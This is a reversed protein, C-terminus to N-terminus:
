HFKDKKNTKYTLRSSKVAAQQQQNDAGGVSPLYSLSISKISSLQGSSSKQSSSASSNAIQQGTPKSRTRSSNGLDQDFNQTQNGEITTTLQRMRRTRTDIKRSGKDQMLNNTPLPKESQQSVKSARTKILTEQNIPKSRGVVEQKPTSNLNSTKSKEPGLYQISGKSGGPKGRSVVPSAITAAGRIERTSAKKIKSDRAAPLDQRQTAPQKRKCRSDSDDQNSYQTSAQDKVSNSNGSSASPTSESTAVPISSIRSAQNSGSKVAVVLRKAPRIGSLSPSLPSSGLSGLTIKNKTGGTALMLSQSNSRTPQFARNNQIISEGQASSAGSISQYQSAMSNASSNPAHSDGKIFQAMTVSHIYEHKLLEGSSPRKAPDMQVCAIVFDIGDNGIRKFPLKKEVSENANPAQSLLKEIGVQDYLNHRLLTYMQSTTLQGLSSMIMSLQHYDTKGPWLPEGRMLEATVCGIAWIDIKIGYHTDGILLEPARYWRTAVYETLAQRDQNEKNAVSESIRNSEKAALPDHVKGGVITSMQMQSSRLGSLSRAFGFDCLKVVGAQNILINEPKIDRHICNHMHCYNIGNVTQWIIKKILNLPCNNEYKEIVDLVTLECYDFVLHLRRKRRFVEILNILNPHKLQRLM